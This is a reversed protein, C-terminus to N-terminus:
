ASAVFRHAPLPRTLFAFALAHVVQPTTRPHQLAKGETRASRVPMRASDMAAVTLSVIKETPLRSTQLAAAEVKNKTSLGQAVRLEHTDAEGFGQTLRM